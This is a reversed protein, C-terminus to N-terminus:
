MSTIEPINGAVIRVRQALGAIDAATTMARLRALSIRKTDPLDRSAMVYFDWQAPDRHDASADAIRHHAFM